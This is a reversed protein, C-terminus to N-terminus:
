MQGIDGRRAEHTQRLLLDVEQQALEEDHIKGVYKDIRDNRIQMAEATSWGRPPLKEPPPPKEPAPKEQPAAKEEGAAHEAALLVSPRKLLTPASRGLLSNQMRQLSKSASGKWM